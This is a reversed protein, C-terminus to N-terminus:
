VLNESRCNLRSQATSLRGKLAELQHAHESSSKSVFRPNYPGTVVPLAFRAYCAGTRPTQVANAHDCFQSICCSLPILYLALRPTSIATGKNTRMHLMSRVKPDSCSHPLISSCRVLCDVAMNNQTLDDDNDDMDLPNISYEMNIMM